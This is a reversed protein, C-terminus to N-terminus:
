VSTLSGTRMSGCIVSLPLELRYQTLAILSSERGEIEGSMANAPRMNNLTSRTHSNCNCIQASATLPSAYLTCIMVTFNKVRQTTHLRLRATTTAPQHRLPSLALVHGRTVCARADTPVSEIMFDSFVVPALMRYFYADSVFLM